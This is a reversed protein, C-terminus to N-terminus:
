VIKSIEQLQRATAQEVVMANKDYSANSFISFVQNSFGIAAAAASVSQERMQARRQEQKEMDARQQKRRAEARAVDQQRARRKADNYRAAYNGTARERLGYSRGIEM